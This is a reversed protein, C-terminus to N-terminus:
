KSEETPADQSRYFPSETCTWPHPCKKSSPLTCQMVTWKGQPVESLYPCKKAKRAM